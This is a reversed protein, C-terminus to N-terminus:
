KTKHQIYTYAYYLPLFPTKNAEFLDIYKQLNEDNIYFRHPVTQIQHNLLYTYSNPNFNDNSYYPYVIKMNLANTEFTNNSIKDDMIKLMTHTSKEVDSYKYFASWNDGGTKINVTKEIVKRTELPINNPDYPPPSAYIQLINEIDMSVVVKRMIDKLPTYQTVKVPKGNEVYKYKNDLAKLGNAVEGVIDATSNPPRYVRIHLFLPYNYYSDQLTLGNVSPKDLTNHIYKIYNTAEVKKKTDPDQKFAYNNICDIVDYFPLSTDVLTPANDSSFGVYLKNKDTLFVNVDVFRCGMYLVKRFQDISIKNGDYATNYSANIAYEKLPLNNTKLFANKQPYPIADMGEQVPESDALRKKQFLRYILYVLLISIFLGLIMTNFTYM